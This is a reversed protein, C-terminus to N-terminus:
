SRGCSQMRRICDHIEHEGNTIVREILSVAADLSDDTRRLYTRNAAAM